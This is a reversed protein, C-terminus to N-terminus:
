EIGERKERIFSCSEWDCIVPFGDCYGQSVVKHNSIWVGDCFDEALSDYHPQVVLFAHTFIIGFILVFMIVLKLFSNM